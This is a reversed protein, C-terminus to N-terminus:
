GANSYDSSWGIVCLFPCRTRFHKSDSSRIFDPCTRGNFVMVKYQVLGMDALESSTLGQTTPQTAPVDFGGVVGNANQTFTQMFSWNGSITPNQVSYSLRPDYVLTLAIVKIKNGKPDRGNGLTTGSIWYANNGSTLLNYNQDYEADSVTM